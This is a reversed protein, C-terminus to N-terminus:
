TGRTGVVSEREGAPLPHVEEGRLSHAISALQWFSYRFLNLKWLRTELDLSAIPM